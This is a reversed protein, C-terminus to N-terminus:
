MEATKQAPKATFPRCEQEKEPVRGPGRIKCRGLPAPWPNKGALGFAKGGAALADRYGEEIAEAAERRTLGLHEGSIALYASTALRILDLTYPGPWAPDSEGPWWRM